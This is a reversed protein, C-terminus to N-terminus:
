KMAATDVLTFDTWQEAPQVRKQEPDYVLLQVVYNGPAMAAPLRIEGAAHIGPPQQAPVPISSSTFIRDSGRFVRVEMELKPALRSQDVIEGFIASDYSLRAGPAFVRTVASGAGLVGARILRQNNAADPDRLTISSLALAAHRFDPVEVFTYASGLRGSDVDRAAIRLQYSGPKPLVMDFGYLLGSTALETAEAVTMENSFTKDSSAAVKNDADWLGAAIELNLRKRGSAADRGHTGRVRRGPLAPYRCGPM